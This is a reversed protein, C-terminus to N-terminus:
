MRTFGAFNATPCLHGSGTMSSFLTQQASLTTDTCVFYKPRKDRPAKVLHIGPHTSCDGTLTRPHIPGPLYPSQPTSASSRAYSASLAPALAGPLLPRHTAERDASQNQGCLHCALTAASLIQDTQCFCVLLVPCVGPAGQATASGTRGAHERWTTSAAITCDTQTTAPQASTGEKGAPLSSYRVLVYINHELGFTPSSGFVWNPDLEALWNIEGTALLHVFDIGFGWYFSGDPAMLPVSRSSGGSFRWSLERTVPNFHYLCGGTSIRLSGDEAISIGGTEGGCEPLQASWLLIPKKQPGFFPSRGTHQPDHQYMPWATDALGNPHAEVTTFLVRLLGSVLFLLLAFYKLKAM